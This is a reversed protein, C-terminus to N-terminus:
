DTRKTYGDNQKLNTNLDLVRQPIPFVTTYRNFEKELQPRQNYAKHYKDFRIMDQRRWGEWALELLREDLINELTAERSAAGVRNRVENLESDGNLGNRVKAESKMLLVDAYRFLVIDNDILKGDKINTKDIAYKKMRAGAMKMHPSDSLDLKIERPLYELIKGLDTKIVHNNLDYVVGAYYNKDFRPDENKTGYDFIDLADITASTGNEGAMGLRQSHNYHLSRFLYQMQNTYSRKDMPIIFINEVSSENFVEFNDEYNGSLQYGSESIRDCYYIVAEWANYQKGAITFNMTTGNARNEDTWNNDTYIEANLYLKALIFYAVPQTVRGYYEGLRNSYTNKLLPAAETLEKVVFEFIESRERQKVEKIPITSSTTLPVRAFLDLLYYYYIARFARVEAIYLDIKDSGFKEKNAELVEISKNSFIVVKYLYDWVANLSKNNVGWTHLYLEQWFGGDYWDLGRIPIMAEDTTLTNFDYIGRTTGQLGQGEEYGGIHTYLAAVYNLYLSELTKQAKEEPIQDKPNEDLCSLNFFSLSLVLLAITSYYKNKKM